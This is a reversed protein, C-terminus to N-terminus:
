TACALYVYLQCSPLSSSYFCLLAHQNYMYSAHPCHHHISTFYLMSPICIALMLATTIFLLLTSCALYVYLQCSPLPSSYFYLLAHQTCMYSAHPCHHHISTFYLMSPICIALMHATTIFLLLTSCALYVYLQCSPLPSSYFYLLAHQTYMYSAHPCHHHISTFYLMSPICIALILASTIFLLLTSCALYVYLQCSPLSSSYFYLLAHQTYMYSAHPYHHHISTFYLKSPICIALMLATTIFLLLTSCALYVYLQCSTLPSSYFYLLAHQTYMYSAHPCHHHISTFYLKSPICIALMLDTTIFLFLTSCALYVYLQCSPLPSSYFYLLAHQTYMYSAHPCHPHISIFYLMSPICIALMPATIIFLLLTSCALYVYLQCSPLPSSYFYLLAHQTYMYSAHPCHHHISIFYLMSPICIALMLATIIFLLLTSCALYVYLQCSPLPSSYFYLLAHQTYMYSAHPCHHHISTFYLMSPICIALMLATTIFLLLTSCALYVYLQCSPLPSSYFYLLAHQTYMYSAHPCHHHISTFYLMSPICIALMLATTIFLLLTSCALYVYLQCSPLPSSYFYLLAHQTYMYSAHPCHHHISTFYLMSPICIALMLATTIFLLLTFCALYVYLQCSPLSSSYFYLLAHQTYMYSAHPCHHHISTFYLMSPICIALMLATTIFLLLTSCALYVYLQCSPLPSSYFYLLAHQTYMYSAHPCHHHISTFYLMSPICIALMLATTIFLLLTSCALYVYLQCSPLPSSYFYLLAHQTYMYSAHPCHHHISTFYLMSPICIALMLATTIFLLLTSCALYVYLQCSPLPSSYFYLLAHQTYMYSAHPCHHHISTFYLMSPICIALMLATTIFLLLTSCALYVYLQCSPLPSSYFYLLAHQTYMYSAHPCHHHISTFYLMSPICIALMLATTIFLLLTFCALYVYLQCSPLPSSYFYLLAHQTYMYSAHPCHHHISTFYLMSPICIALMLATTIFLLLTSCALYVYLQCSLLPSSYFYLLAHQTYMYSAHPCHHHISTFYLMSPICIALMLATIIFLLLTSCALYVYLQCSPLPSSYFYLLAHQTYMYSAHPCHHHISTFYLMSPICIALMLATTIFLLLTSCALYVYLQCSPLPSSYFYIAHQTCISAHPCHHHISTFYLMSPICIALMLATTIFLLLTIAHQYVYLQCSPLPSSYFYLLAHQTYMYSAHPCHHHISTFCLMSPICIALMLATTIFLLLTSCALYVYLQCSPLPSSYFYLLAHQTYMYSAHPCHHHISTFYLMSPICIALMLATTIFLLLTSCALYVYLQCSPLPSSYFYLLAHQTYMYSAHPCHHHISTFYLMSPICIALMLATTIFLLLTSCALYVYLQCSPLPSSYFYLLAHQTYMYSAHPCHHHISTFYLMSPICIALMLATTIFLLLTSCALYVYLQCSPLPSSYFYLLAHQTYMYSAHPCHHHISTFYLMSPICIALMLATTIFLLLTSCALYVYLQCSPLPSSYFYLLAHQTYMYSAHPCHHHISTFYLMSPICIALMLATTIFLLLTSCALYVYLQCSPLPSSYFYLLAHQTYMYSAHPCHHHISTFYLMSPICIALMLATIIFLLLTSCALYVYLQCSPLPSSYFYLLAHQTYMYSAHPCHHHISTFYLMSPICIALMLATTIFLLLTFCALYVYLQCSPLPSSYFYLLAHQTYMYSAHPCHHHISTFYLMSPICIALMLATTIFLLLTSCALYVYLQCSPLPSSYFYLLAHQTYMYSAHPCHHHISTFYLMSPICIALMLATTIFLLLTAHQTYMYSAHPCHHHISTFYLMSPICIALMLATTIFLLLTSCALYVYLQCSPLPSSYFYLLAHQTYMYSAHPCHHHISTFYLMSPICIALMLATTIFLLLTFCALYVYLQCSPLPSSYFYLLAHQTYMYSAHPCHSSYFYLAHQTYMYSAHPCHHHISTFYLMSPICIALMLATTIFLLLTSCALYVYLQCSPLPHISTFYLMSPICIALMLATTIFLLLTSCALYVYLQCSPLPSSYFYLLAHQTYMYSAHPCHHHISTFYLMSPICIALMLATTIFLLLTSCALYVYLQCSPLPSSYFYLLAHQTYMYSAHPCHHHISTFYLMSPICIALMLATTIFLLLTSCALYVYLQCSPLPSSYFYLLAHQTYMYSAHPCHHHISTFYLMSPICIALMLATTIFLLLTSCALYVYLQCSPLPSSYFYLLAHQTYMYSAHPCHHHISTFYLMSPICIALMLATTIFLLLTFCALYVYLQCSPLPSSYFYLLHQTYMYSAHPCHHHISTFYLMSPICIALMLATTIFLLLTFCALYVYLQCSPLSSSYFYLLAHQTYMYSAHPCHHHISTFYLMSPICIALMLATTIFLLLTSCALYVYLQCSPLSSSYFYLLAHQTYMYSAHPCHHHISTFYLMSPICIALMLATTIFLLLTSCALYVYLQCSPLPSSYFYLLAHQTYMYSAHPCHHHISTFYLMSPICIALMLATTIFLLLTSCALYVYLQCSPLSSSYISPLTHATTISSTYMYLQCSPLPSSYFYLLAHQTYMYSAHPCHHHISTFYLMSPICIALMLATTIFLLLTFCALYVYLQCSPLPSSYFYLLAHQTYMYSAHPCHHHISTFYLMSPICIALMLATTIFLLLTSCALYVYLQCSPLPSSYFYLLAHQTYMYSAHPCHHHISTFYLMSPICIALMLATTIFLLLTSCALYVYLQCSPLPSSYFYLLAHQTYMYSAHPCHHHISTFYLMSPICIALMLATTIFLLLTSCALYVYLQCSPLPSSYFYLLAHQTYMYSAHPLPSSYFYLLAHQTYMYSAHPCHHHISTFYLMSPICIALMLATTIFLLLTSCALYVYLQCSPLPSSYFYLLAHQTYMYSAHPCHHHISTFYLMSPICIALMLATTIFLLLTSCALYVYLQCSPLPSSYFYLLAHQTYMYSAHPCHHHISTFYLMSPICIALMLATTIFLLLTFCALYVYLQCSPLPSSYFYLLAHQTYMYSAHPCHHHISTFYLMSPICIALMLATTIFLLLTSCALYVYLQCSPLPSSYFYLLAHQTYMYSAHPCHHHISTFYLMSPICIALMLATTIFLLLTFCALYVYLQCSPLSSSYFYLLAHQTYMYSAHPCHHHISTFYLMSPICIALMLATTIFLPSTFCALYVYLQCSPLSSSYFYLLAHQTYMYSAHPCHHHISTFYLMSPICIALMLATTIFLLLTSCALYVYLQCSPLPSSYFYLLAHQTYMYSAHPCHHHISTFYLMSPICIALMLATTIFLLLTSCALYVYLQCSPLPSSYFYLLAHQTYMYSAHPCHHHISTFYLMSPICIALMLATTIFLLLTSCALYVYLQCSPLPSSYFYLLAHQTYMYSAHPCHHHISTFYLMSPICIALMLATTIFLLLTSCALYVYLQCSPLPSSYFYLLAHQTYMYSAHTCHHHISTFYLMSPICIALMLATTIFLLLTFCALYVYLQCSPLPSSYFYLLAHQTYMYSAHPCHHHISTFYLTSPLCIALMLDTIIFLFLTFCALYVYLQCSPLPSSYFYLLAHQTYMYSAHPCHHHISTFYLMSPICIALILATTIFLLLTSCALYVYLQCSPLPSSYFYLLAHQTYMYSAHPCHHHISTFYLMSPICIALMLATTIFLLLTSCALYVNLQCSPLSSSYIYLLAHQTYMYRAHPCHHYISTFYLMSPICIALMLATTIYLLITSCALYVYLQCSPLSSTYFYIYLMSPICIALMIATTIFLLLTSCALYVYLQCSPLPSSYFYLIAHQTYMYSAHPCHHHISTYYLMSPICIALMLAHSLTYFYLLAHQPYMYSAHHCHHHISTFYLMSPICIALMLATTIFLLLTSCALYVYLQCSPLPSLYFYLLAHQTYMYSAHPCHHHISTFYLTSPICIALMLATIIFLLLTFCALYVYLQCSPLPSSYFYLLAHQTYMYSAHPCHHHISTFYLKSPICIALMLDTTFFLFLTSCALYVYLQCSPLPSSYFYLLAHQTYMYSAHPCHPHISIFYLMSPICIALMPATIIFLLLTSCALYVYLQCSPLPSSYFYLLAHQTYMYSAHPCHHHISIFYLMSPICIALM